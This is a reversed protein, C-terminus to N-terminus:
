LVYHFRHAWGRNNEDVIHNQRSSAHMPARCLNVQGHHGTKSRHLSRLILPDSHQILGAQLNDLQHDIILIQM